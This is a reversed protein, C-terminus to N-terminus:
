ASRDEYESATRIESKKGFYWMLGGCLIMLAMIGGLVMEEEAPIDTLFVLGMLVGMVVTTGGVLPFTSVQKKGKGFVEKAVDIQTGLKKFFEEVMARQEPPIQALQAQMQQMMQQMQGGMAEVQAKTIEMYTSKALDAMQMVQRSNDFILLYKGEGPNEGEVRLKGADLYITVQQRAQNNGVNRLEQQIVTGAQAQWAICGFWALFGAQLVRTRM